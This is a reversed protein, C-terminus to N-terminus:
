EKKFIDRLKIINFIKKIATNKVAYQSVYSSANYDMSSIYTLKVGDAEKKIFFAALNVYMKSIHDNRIDEQSNIDPKFSNASGVIPNVYKRDWYADYDNMDSSTMVITTKDKSPEVKNALANYHIQGSGLNNKYLRQVIRLNKNYVQPINGEIFTNDFYMEGNPDWLMSVVDAYNDPNPITLELKAFDTNNVRKFYLAAGEDDKLYLKYDNTNEAHKSALALAEAMVDEATKDEETNTSVQLKFEEKAPKTNSIVNRAFAINQMYSAVSLLALAIKIYGKNM